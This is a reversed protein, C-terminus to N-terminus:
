EVQHPHNKKEVERIVKCNGITVCDKCYEEFKLLNFASKVSNALLSIWDKTQSILRETHKQQLIKSNEPDVDLPELM